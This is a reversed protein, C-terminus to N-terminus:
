LAKWLEHLLNVLYLPPVIPRTEEYAREMYHTGEQHVHYAFHEGGGYDIWHLMKAHVPVIEGGRERMWSYPLNTRIRATSSRTGTRLVLGINAALRGAHYPANQRALDRTPLVSPYLARGQVDPDKLLAEVLALRENVFSANCEFSFICPM